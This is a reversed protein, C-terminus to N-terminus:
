RKSFKTNNKNKEGNFHKKRNAYRKKFTTKSIEKFLKPKYTEDDCNIRAYYFINETVCVGRMSWNEKELSNCLKPKPPPTNELIKMNHGDIKAKLNETCCYSFKLTSKNFIKYVKNGMAPSIISIIDRRKKFYLRQHSYNHYASIIITIHTIKSFTFTMHKTM